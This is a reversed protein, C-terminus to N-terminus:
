LRLRDGVGMKQGATAYRPVAELQLLRLGHMPAAEEESDLRYATMTFIQLFLM